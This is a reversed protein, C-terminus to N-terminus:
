LLKLVNDIEFEFLNWFTAANTFKDKYLMPNFYVHNNVGYMRVEQGPAADQIDIDIIKFHTTDAFIPDINGYNNFAFFDKPMMLLLRKGEEVSCQHLTNNLSRLRNMSQQRAPLTLKEQRQRNFHEIWEKPTNLLNNPTDIYGFMALSKIEERDKENELLHRYTQIVALPFPKNVHEVMIKQVVYYFYDTASAKIDKQKLYQKIENFQELPIKYRGFDMERKPWEKKEANDPPIPLPSNDEPLAGWNYRKENYPTRTQPHATIPSESLNLDIFSLLDKMLLLVATVDGIYHACAMEIVTENQTQWFKIKIFEGQEYNFDHFLFSSISRMVSNLTYIQTNTHETHIRYATNTTFQFPTPSLNSKDYSIQGTLYPHKQTLAYTASELISERIAKNIRTKVVINLSSKLYRNIYAFSCDNFNDVQYIM